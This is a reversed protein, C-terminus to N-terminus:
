AQRVLASLKNSDRRPAQLVGRFEPGLRRWKDEVGQDLVVDQYEVIKGKQRVPERGEIPDRVRDIV